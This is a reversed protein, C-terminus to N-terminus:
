KLAYLICGTMHSVVSHWSRFTTTPIGQRRIEYFGDDMVYIETTIESEDNAVQILKLLLREKM